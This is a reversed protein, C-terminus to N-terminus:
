DENGKDEDPDPLPLEALEDKSVKDVPLRLSLWVAM